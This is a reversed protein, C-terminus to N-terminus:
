GMRTNELNIKDEILKKDRWDYKNSNIWGKMANFMFPVSYGGKKMFERAGRIDITNGYPSSKNKDCLLKEILWENSFHDKGDKLKINVPAINFEVPSSKWVNGNSDEDFSMLLGHDSSYYEVCCKPDYMVKYGKREARIGFSIDDQGMEGDLDEDFGNIDLATKVSFSMNAGYLWGGTVVQPSKIITSRYELGSKGIVGKGNKDMSQCGIWNGAVMYGKDLWTVHRELWDDYMKCCDDHHVIYQGNAFVLATNRANNIAPRKGRWRSSKDPIHLVPFTIDLKKVIDIVVEKRDGYLGDVIIYEFDKFTQRKLSELAWEFHPRSRKTVLVVTVKVM